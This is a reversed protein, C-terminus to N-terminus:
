AAEAAALAKQGDLTVVQPCRLEYGGTTRNGDAIFKREDLRWLTTSSVGKPGKLTNGTATYVRVVRGNYTARLARVEAKTLSM